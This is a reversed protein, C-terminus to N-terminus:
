ENNARRNWRSICDMYGDKDTMIEGQNIYWRSEEEFYYKCKDCGVVFTAKFCDSFSKSRLFIRAEGGCFPCHKLEISM